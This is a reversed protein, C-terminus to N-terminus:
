SAGKHLLVVPVTKFLIKIDLWLSWTDIYKLDLAMWEDFDSIENRGSVQWLGTIGPRVSLRRRHRPKYQAVESPLPPRPGVLSMQGALVNFLQPLEDISTKRIFRGIRTIRPDHKIKFVPGQMENLHMLEAKKKEADICMSRFKLMPFKRGQLGSRVQKFLIPGGDELKILIAVTALLPSIAIIGLFSALIDLVRKGILRVEGTPKQTIGIMPMNFGTMNALEMEGNLQVTSPMSLLVDVGREDCAALAEAFDEHSKEPVTFVVEDVVESDLLYTLDEVRGLIPEAETLEPQGLVSVFGVLRNNWSSRERLSRAFAVAEAGTGVILVCHDDVRKARRIVARASLRWTLLFVFQVAGFIFVFSRSLFTVKFWFSAIVLLGLGVAVARLYRMATRGAGARFDATNTFHFVLAWLPVMGLLFKPYDSALFLEVSMERRGLFAPVYESVNPLWQRLSLAAFFAVVSVFLDSLLFIQRFLVAQHRTM